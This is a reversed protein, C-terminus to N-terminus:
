KLNLVAQLSHDLFSLLLAYTHRKPHFTREPTARNLECTDSSHPEPTITHLEAVPKKLVPRIELEILDASQNKGEYFLCVLGIILSSRCAPAPCHAWYHARLRVSFLVSFCIERVSTERETEM